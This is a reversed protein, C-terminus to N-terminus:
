AVGFDDLLTRINRSFAEESLDRKWKALASQKMRDLEERNADLKLLWEVAQEMHLPDFVVGDDGHTLDGASGCQDSIMPVAGYAMAELPSSGRLEAFSPLICVDHSAYLTGMELFPVSGALKIWPRRSMDQITAFHSNDPRPMTGALTLSIRDQAGMEEIKQILLHQNKREAGLKGVLLVKLRDDERPLVEHPLVDVPLPLFRAYPDKPKRRDLGRVPTFREIPLGKYRLLLRRAFSTPVDDPVQNYLIRPIGKRRAARSARRSIAWANRIIVLDPRFEQVEKEVEEYSPTKGMVVPELMSHDEGGSAVCVLLRVEHGDALLRRVAFWMNTHFRPLTFLLRAM